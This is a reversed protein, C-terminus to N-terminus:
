ATSPRQQWTPKEKTTTLLPYGRTKNPSRVASDERTTRPSWPVHAETTAVGLSWLVPETLKHRVLKTAEHGTPEEWILSPVWTEQM